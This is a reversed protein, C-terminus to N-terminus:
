NSNGKRKKRRNERDIRRQNKKNNRRNQRYEKMGEKYDIKSLKVMEKDFPIHGDQIDKIIIETIWDEGQPDYKVDLDHGWLMAMGEYLGNQTKGRYKEIIESVTMGTERHILRLLLDGESVYLDKINFTFEEKLDAHAEKGYKKKKRKNDIEALDKEYEMIMEKAKLAMPYTRKLQRLRYKYKWDFNKDVRMEILEQTKIITDKKQAFVNMQMVLIFLLVISKSMKELLESNM